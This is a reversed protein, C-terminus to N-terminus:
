SSVLLIGGFVIGSGVLIQPSLVEGLIFYGAVGAIIPTVYTVMAMQTAEFHRYLWILALSTMVTGWISLFVTSEIAAASLRVPVGREFFFALCAIVLFGYGISFSNLVLTGYTEVHRKSLIGALSSSAPALAVALAGWLQMPHGTGPEHWCIVLVGGFGVIIGILRKLTLSEDPLMFHAMLATYMPSLAFLIAALASSIYQMGWYILGYPVVFFALGLVFLLRHGALDRPVRIPFVLLLLFSVLSALFFRGALFTLPPLDKLGVKIPFWTTGWSLCLLLVLLYRFLM